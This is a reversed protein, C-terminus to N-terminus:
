YGPFHRAVYGSNSDLLPRWRPGSEGGPDGAASTDLRIGAIDMYAHGANAYVTIWRGPGASGWLELSGSDLPAALLNAGHLAFSVSGSCDYGASIFSAHGGGYIYPKGILQNGAAIAQKVATPAGAPALALGDALIRARGSDRSPEGAPGTAGSPGSAGTVGTSGTVGSPRTGTAATPGAPGGAGTPGRSPKVPERAGGTRSVAGSSGTAGDTVPTDPAAPASTGGDPEPASPDSSANSQGPATSSYLAGGDAQGDPGAPKRHASAAKAPRHRHGSAASVAPATALVCIALVVTGIAIPLRPM